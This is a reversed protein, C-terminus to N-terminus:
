ANKSIIVNIMNGSLNENHFLLSFIYKSIKDNIRIITIIIFARIKFQLM